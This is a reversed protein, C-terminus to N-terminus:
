PRDNLVEKRPACGVIWCGIRPTAKMRTWTTSKHTHGPDFRCGVSHNRTKGRVARMAAVKKEMARGIKFSCVCIRAPRDRSDLTVSKRKAM